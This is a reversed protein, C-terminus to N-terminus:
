VNSKLGGTEEIPIRILVTLGVQPKNELIIGYADGYILKLTRDMNYLGIHEDLRETKELKGIVEAFRAETMGGANDTIQVQLHDKKLEVEIMIKFCDRARFGHKISNEIFPQTFFKPVLVGGAEAPLHIEYQMREQFRAKHLKLYNELHELDENIPVLKDNMYLNYRLFQSLSIIIEEAKKTDVLLTYRLTELVNFIFHPNFQSRLIAIESEKQLEFLEENRAILQNIEAIMHNYEDALTEFEDGTKLSVSAQLDGERTKVVVKLLEEVPGVAQRGMRKSLFLLICVLLAMVFTIFVPLFRLIHQGEEMSNITNIIIDDDPMQYSAMYFKNGELLLEGDQDPTLILKNLNNRAQEITTALVTDFRNTLVVAAVGKAAILRKLLQDSTYYMLYGAPAGEEYIVTGFGYYYLMGFDTNLKGYLTEIGQQGENKMQVLRTLASGKFVNERKDTSLLVEEELNLITMEFQIEQKLSNAYYEEYVRYSGDGSQVFDRVAPLGAMRLCEAKYNQYLADLTGGIEQGAKQTRFRLSNNTNFVMFVSFLLLLLFVPVIAYLIFTNRIKHVFSKQRKM